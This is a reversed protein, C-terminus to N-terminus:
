FWSGAAPQANHFTLCPRWKNCQTSAIASVNPPAKAAVDEVSLNLAKAARILVERAESLQRRRALKLSEQLETRRANWDQVTTGANDKYARQQTLKGLQEVAANLIAASSCVSWDEAHTAFQEANGHQIPKRPAERSAIFRDEEEPERRAAGGGPRLARVHLEQEAACRAVGRPM